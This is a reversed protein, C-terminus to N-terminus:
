EVVMNGILMADGFSFFRYNKSIAEEYAKMILDKGGFACVLMLLTSKPLHFNTILVDVIKFQYGPYIFLNTKDESAKIERKYGSPYGVTELARAVTTGVAIIRGGGEITQNIKLAAEEGVKFYESHMEHDKINEVKVPRFTDL